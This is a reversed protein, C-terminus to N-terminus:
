TERWSLVASLKRLETEGEIILGGKEGCNQISTPFKIEM